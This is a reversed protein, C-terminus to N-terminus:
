PQIMGVAQVAALMASTCGGDSYSDSDAELIQFMALIGSRNVLTWPMGINSDAADVFAPPFGLGKLYAKANPVFNAPNPDKQYANALQILNKDTGNLIDQFLANSALAGFALVRFDFEIKKKPALFGVKSQSSYAAEENKQKM